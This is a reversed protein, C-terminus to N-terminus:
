PQRKQGSVLLYRGTQATQAAALDLELLLDQEEPELEEPNMALWSFVGIPVIELREMGARQYWTELTKASQWNYYTGWLKGESNEAVRRATDFDQKGLAEALYYEPPRHSIFCLGGPRLLRLLGELLAAHNLRLYLVETCVVVDFSRESQRPLWRNLDARHTRVATAEQRAHRRLRRLALDSTDVGTVRHGQRALPVALRGAQCGADLLDLPPLRREEALRKQICHLYIRGFYREGANEYMDYYTAEDRLIARRLKRFAKKLGPVGAGQGM